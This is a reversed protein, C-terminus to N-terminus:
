KPSNSAGPIPVEVVQLGAVPPLSWSMLRPSYSLDEIISRALGRMPSDYYVMVMSYFVMSYFVMSYFVMSYVILPHLFLKGHSSDPSRPKLFSRGLLVEVDAM